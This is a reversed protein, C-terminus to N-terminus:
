VVGEQPDRTHGSQLLLLFLALMTPLGWSDVIVISGCFESLSLTLSPTHTHKAPFSRAKPSRPEVELLTLCM